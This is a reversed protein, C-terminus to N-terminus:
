IIKAMEDFAFRPSRPFLGAPDGHGLNLLFNSKVKTGAFFEKDVGANDFGSMAGTDLGLARAALILYGGQLTANRFATIETHATKDPGSFWDKVAPAHPFLKPLQEYFALDHAVIAVVPASMTKDVNGAMLHPKLRAKAEPTKLFVLRMPSCNVSTPGWKVLDVLDKLQQDTVPTDRWKNQTRADFFLQNLAAQDLRM